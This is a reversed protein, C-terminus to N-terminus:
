PGITVVGEYGRILMPQALTVPVNGAGTYTGGKIWLEGGAPVAGYGVAITNYPQPLTGHRIGQYAGDVYVWNLPACYPLSKQITPSGGPIQDLNYWGSSSGGWGVNLYFYPSPSERYGAAVVTHTYTSLVVPLGGFLSTIISGEHSAPNGSVVDVTGRYRFYANMAAASPWASSAGAEYDMDVAVGAHYMIQAVDANPQTLNGGPMNAWNYTSAGFNVSHFYQLLGGQDQYSHTSNGVPPWSHFRMKIAMATATCGSLVSNGGNHAVCEINYPWGQAWLPTGWLIYTARDAAAGGLDLVEGDALAAHLWTWRPHEPVLVGNALQDRLAQWRDPLARALYKRLYNEPVDDASFPDLASFALVPELRDDATLVIFGSVPHSVIYGLVESEVPPADLWRGDAAVYTLLPQGFAGLLATREETSLGLRPDAIEAALWADAVAAAVVSM